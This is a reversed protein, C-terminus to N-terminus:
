CLVQFYPKGFAFYNGLWWKEPATLDTLKLCHLRKETGSNDQQKQLRICLQMRELSELRLFRLSNWRRLLRTSENLYPLTPKFDIHDLNM